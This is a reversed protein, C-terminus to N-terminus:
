HKTKEKVEVDITGKDAVQSPPTTPSAPQDEEGKVGDKFGKVAKGLDSGINSLKKTGFVLVVILLVILWHFMSFSGM